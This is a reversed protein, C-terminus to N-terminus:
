KDLERWRKEAERAKDKEGLEQWSDKLNYWADQYNPSLKVATEFAQAAEELQGTVFYLVGLNNWGRYNMSDEELAKRYLEEALTYKEEHYHNLGLDIMCDVWQPELELCRTLLAGATSWDQKKQFVLALNYLYVGNAPELELAANFAMIAKDLKGRQSLEMGQQNLDEASLM